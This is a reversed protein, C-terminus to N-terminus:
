RVLATKEIQARQQLEAVTSASLLNKDLMAVAEGRAKGQGEARATGQPGHKAQAGDEPTAIPEPKPTGAPVVLRAVEIPAAAARDLDALAAESAVFQRAGPAALKFVAGNWEGLQIMNARADFETDLDRIDKNADAIQAEIRDLKGRELAGQSTALYSGLAFAVTFTFWGIGKFGYFAM